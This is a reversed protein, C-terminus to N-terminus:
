HHRWSKGSRRVWESDNVGIRSFQEAFEVVIKQAHADKLEDIWEFSAGCESEFKWYSGCRKAAVFGQSLDTPQFTLMQLQPVKKGVKLLVPKGRHKVVIEFEKTNDDVEEMPIIPFATKDFIRVSDCRPQLCIWFNENKNIKSVLITGLTLNPACVGYHTKMHVMRAFESNSQNALEDKTFGHTMQQWQRGGFSPHEVKNIGKDMLRVLKDEDNVPLKCWRISQDAAKDQLWTRIADIGAQRGVGAFELISSIEAVLLEVIHDEADAPNPLLARHGLYAADLRSSFQTLLKHTEARIESLAAIAVNPLLGKTMSAFEQILREPLESTTVIREAIVTDLPPFQTHEKGFITLRVSGSRFTFEGIREPEVCLCDTLVRVCNDAVGALHPQGTYIAILRMRDTDGDGQLMQQILEMAKRGNDRGIAWDLVVIDAVETLKTAQTLEDDASYPRLVACAIGEDAFKDILTKVDLDEPDPSKAPADEEPAILNPHIENAEHNAVQGDATVAEEDCNASTPDFRAKDDIVVVTQLFRTVNQVALDTIDQPLDADM